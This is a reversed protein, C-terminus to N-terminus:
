VVSAILWEPIYIYIYIYIDGVTFPGIGPPLTLWVYFHVISLYYSIIIIIIIIIISLVYTTCFVSHIVLLAFVNICLSTICVFVSRIFFQFYRFISSLGDLRYSTAIGASSDRGYIWGESWRVYICVFSLPGWLMDPLFAPFTVGTDM